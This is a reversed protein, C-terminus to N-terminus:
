KINFWWWCMWTFLKGTIEKNIFIKWKSETLFNNYTDASGTVFGPEFIAGISNSWGGLGPGSILTGTGGAITHQSMYTLM